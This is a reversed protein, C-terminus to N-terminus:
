ITRATGYPRAHARLRYLDALLDWNDAVSQDAQKRNGKARGADTLHSVM